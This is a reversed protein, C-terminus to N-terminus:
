LANLNDVIQNSLNNRYEDILYAYIKMTTIVNAHGLRKAIGDIPIGQSLLFAVHCHRLSHFHFDRKAINLSDLARKLAKNATHSNPLGQHTASWFVFDSRNVKLELLLDILKKPVSIKRVSSENKTPGFQKTRYNWTKSISFTNGYVDIDNWNLGTLESLRAGSYLAAIILYNNPRLPKRTKTEYNILAKIQAISLYEVKLAKDANFSININHTFDKTIIGDYLASQVCSKVCNNLKHVTNKAHNNGFDNIFEQYASRTINKMKTKGFYNELRKGNLQYDQYTSLTVKAKKYTDVWNQYYEVLSPNVDFKLGAQKMQELKAIYAQAEAKTKFGSKYKQSLSKGVRHSYRITWGNDKKIIQAM